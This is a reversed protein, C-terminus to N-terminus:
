QFHVIEDEHKKDLQYATLELNKGLDRYIRLHVIQEKGDEDVAKAKVFYNTGAVTQTKYSIVDLETYKKGTKQEFEPKIDEVIKAVTEDKPKIDAGVAGVKHGLM